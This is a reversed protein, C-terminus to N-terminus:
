RTKKSRSREPRPKNGTTVRKGFDSALGTGKAPAKAARPERGDMFCPFFAREVEAVTQFVRLKPRNQKM